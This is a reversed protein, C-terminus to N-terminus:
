DSCYPQASIWEAMEERKGTKQFPAWDAAVGRWRSDRQAIVGDRPVTQAMIRVACSLNAAGNKLASASRAKCGYSRATAPAIQLLGLWRGGGGSADARWTSEHKALASLLGAWFRRRDPLSAEEYNPCYTEVDEPVSLALVAGHSRLAELTAETWVEADPRHDWQMVPPSPEKPEATVCAALPVLLASLAV